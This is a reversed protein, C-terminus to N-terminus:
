WYYIALLLYDIVEGGDGRAFGLPRNFYDASPSEEIKCKKMKVHKRAVVMPGRKKIRSVDEQYVGNIGLFLFAWLELRIGPKLKNKRIM